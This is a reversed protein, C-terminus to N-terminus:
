KEQENDEEYYKDVDHVTVPAKLKKIEEKLREVEKQLSDVKNSEEIYMRVFHQVQEALGVCGKGLPRIQKKLARYKAEFDVFAM